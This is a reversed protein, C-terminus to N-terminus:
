PAPVLRPRSYTGVEVGDVFRIGVFGDTPATYHYFRLVTGDPDPVDLLLGSGMEVIGSHAIGLRDCRSVLEALSAASSPTLAVVDFGSLDPRGACVSRDRLAICFRGEEDILGVGRLEGDEEFEIWVRLDLLECYWPVSRVLDTVPLKVQAIREIM